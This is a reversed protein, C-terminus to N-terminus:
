DKGSESRSRISEIFDKFWADSLMEQSLRDRCVECDTLHETIVEKQIDNLIEQWNYEPNNIDESFISPYIHGEKDFINYRLIFKSNCGKCTCTEDWYYSESVTNGDFTYNAVDILNTGCHDCLVIDENIDVIQPGDKNLSM